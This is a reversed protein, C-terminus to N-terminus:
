RQEEYMTRLYISYVSQVAARRCFLPVNGNFDLRGLAEEIAEILDKESGGREFIEAIEPARAKACDPLCYSRLANAIELTLSM